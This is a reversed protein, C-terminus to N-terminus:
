LQECAVPFFIEVCKHVLHVLNPVSHCVSTLQAFINELRLLAEM